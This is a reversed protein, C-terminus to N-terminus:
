ELQVNQLTRHLFLISPDNRWGSLLFYLVMQITTLFIEIVQPLRTKPSTSTITVHEEVPMSTLLTYTTSYCWVQIIITPICICVLTRCVMLLYLVVRSCLGIGGSVTESKSTYVQLKKVYGNISDALVWVKMEWKTLKDKLYQKFGLRGKFSIMAEDITLKQHM